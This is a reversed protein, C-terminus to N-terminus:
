SGASDQAPNEATDSGDAEAKKILSVCHRMVDLNRKALKEDHSMGSKSQLEIFERYSYLFIV